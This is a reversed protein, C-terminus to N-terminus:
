LSFWSLSRKAAASIVTMWGSRMVTRSSFPLWAVLGERDVFHRQEPLDVLRGLELDADVPGRPHVLQDAVANEDGRRGAAGGVIQRGM